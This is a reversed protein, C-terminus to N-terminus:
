DVKPGDGDKTAPPWKAWIGSMESQYYDKISGVDTFDNFCLESYLMTLAALCTEYDSLKTHMGDIQDRTPGAKGDMGSKLLTEFGRRKIEYEAQLASSYNELTKLVNLRTEEVVRRDSEANARGIQALQSDLTKTQLRQMEDFEHRQTDLLEKQLAITKLIALLTLFSILPGFLGGIYSGFASWSDAKSSLGADFVSMYTILSVVVSLVVVAVLSVSFWDTPKKIRSSGSEQGADQM